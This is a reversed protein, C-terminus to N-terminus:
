GICPNGVAITDLCNFVVDDADCTYPLPGCTMNIITCLSNVTSSWDDLGNQFPAAPVVIAITILGTSSGACDWTLPGTPGPVSCHQSSGKPCCKGCADVLCFGGAFAAGVSLIPIACGIWVIIRSHKSLAKKVVSRTM